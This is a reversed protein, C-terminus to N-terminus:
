LTGGLNRQTLGNGKSQGVAISIGAEFIEGPKLRRIRPPIVGPEICLFKSYDNEDLDPAAACKLRWPTWIGVSELSYGCVTVLRDEGPDELRVPGNFSFVRNTERTFRITGSSTIKKEAADSSMLDKATDCPFPHIRANRLDSVLFYPHFAGSLDWAMTSQNTIGIDIELQDKLTIRCLASFGHPWYERSEESDHLSLTIATATHDHLSDQVDWELIRFFGHPPLKANEPNMGFWPWCLPIGGRIAKGPEIDGVKSLFLTEGFGEPVYSIVTAGSLAITASARDSEIVASIIGSAAMDFRIRGQVAFRKQLMVLRDEPADM